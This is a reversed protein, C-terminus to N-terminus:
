DDSQNYWRSKNQALLKGKKNKKTKKESTKQFVNVAKNVLKNQKAEQVKLVRNLISEQNSIEEKKFDNTEFQQKSKQKIASRKPEGKLKPDFKGLSATSLKAIDFKDLINKKNKKKIKDTISGPILRGQAKATKALNGLQNLKEIEKKKKKKLRKELFPDVSPDIEENQKQEIVWDEPVENKSKYGYRTRFEDHQESYVLKDKDKSKIGKRKALLEWKSPEKPKPVPKERPLLNEPKPTEIFLGEEDEEQPLDYLKNILLQTNEQSVQLLYNGDNKYKEMDIPHSDFAALYGLDYVLDDVKSM